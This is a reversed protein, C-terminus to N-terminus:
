SGAIQTHSLNFIQNRKTPRPFIRTSNSGGLYVWEAEWNPRSGADISGPVKREMVKGAILHPTRLGSAHVCLKWSNAGAAAPCLSLM